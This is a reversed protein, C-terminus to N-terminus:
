HAGQAKQRWLELAPNADGGDDELTVPEPAAVIVQEDEDRLTRLTRLNDSVQPVVAMTRVISRQFEQGKQQFRAGFYFSVVAGLLWWMPEPVLAIGQMREAFWIPDAMAAAFMALTGLAMAPRPLRNLADMLVDFRSTRPNGYEAAFQALIKARLEAERSAGAEANERFVGATEVLVNRGNGFVVNMMREILGM